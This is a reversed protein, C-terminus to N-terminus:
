RLTGPGDLSPSLNPPPREGLEVNVEVRQGDRIVVTPVTDGPSTNLALFTSLAERDSIPVGAMEVIVDGGVPVSRGNVIETGTSGQLVDESPGDPVVEVVFVGRAEALDNAEAVSPGVGVLQIGVFPHDYEGDEILAPVVREMLAASIAFNVDNGRGSNIVGVVEGGLTILPGGSNGPNAAADTQVADAIVFNNAAPLSRNVGSIIGASVSEGLGFPNGLAVVETGIPPETEVLPLATAYEPRDEVRVVALDSYVDTGVVEGDRWEGRAFQIEVEEAGEVVHENTVLYEGDYVVGSGESGGTGTFVRVLVVSDIAARYAQTYPSTEQGAPDAGRAYTTSDFDTLTRGVPDGRGNCGALGAAAATGLAGIFARRTRGARDGTEDDDM